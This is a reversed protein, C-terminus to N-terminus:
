LDEFFRAVKYPVRGLIPGSVTPCCVYEIGAVKNGIDYGGIIVAGTLSDAGYERAAIRLKRSIEEIIEIREEEKM